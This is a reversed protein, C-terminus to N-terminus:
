AANSGAGGRRRHIYHSNALVDPITFWFRAGGTSVNVVGIKGSFLAVLEKCIALGLGVSGEHKARSGDLQHFKQFIEERQDPPVGPGTDIVDVRLTSMGERSIMLDVSGKLTFKLANSILNRMLQALRRADGIGERPVGNAISLRLNLGKDKAPLQLGSVVSEALDYLDFPERVPTIARIELSSLDLVDEILALLAKGSERVIELQGAQRDNLGSFSLLEVMGLIGNMPTRMEHSMTAVFESKARDASLAEDRAARLKREQLYTATIDSASVHFAPEGTAADRCRVALMDLWRRGSKTRVQLTARHRGSQALGSRFEYTADRDVFGKGFPEGRTGLAERLARNAYLETGDHAYLGAMVEAHLLADVCRLVEPELPNQLSAEVLIADRDDPLPCWHFTCDMLTPQGAPYLTWTEVPALGPDKSLDKRYQALRERVAPSMESEMTRSALEESSEAQWLRLGAQNAWVIAYADFDYIWIPTRLRELHASTVAFSAHERSRGEGSPVVEGIGSTM